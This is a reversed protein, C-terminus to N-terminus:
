AAKHRFRQTLNRVSLCPPVKVPQRRLETGKRMRLLHDESQMGTITSTRRLGAWLGATSGLSSHAARLVIGDRSHEETPALVGCQRLSRLFRNRSM